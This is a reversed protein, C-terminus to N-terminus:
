STSSFCIADRLLVSAPVYHGRDGRGERPRKPPLKSGFELSGPEGASAESSEDGKEGARARDGEPPADEERPRSRRADVVPGTVGAAKERVLEGVDGLVPTEAGGREEAPVDAFVQAAPELAEVM